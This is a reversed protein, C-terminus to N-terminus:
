FGLLPSSNNSSTVVKCKSTCRASGGAWHPEGGQYGVCPEREVTRDRGKGLLRPNPVWFYESIMSSCDTLTGLFFLLIFKGADAWTIPTTRNQVSPKKQPIQPSSILTTKHFRIWSVSDSCRSRICTDTYSQFRSGFCSARFDGFCSVSAHIATCKHPLQRTCCQLGRM